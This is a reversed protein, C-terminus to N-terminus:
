YREGRPEYQMQYMRRSFHIKKGFQLDQTPKSGGGERRAGWMSKFFSLGPDDKNPM